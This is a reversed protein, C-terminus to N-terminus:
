DAVHQMGDWTKYNTRSRLKRAVFGAEQSGSNL